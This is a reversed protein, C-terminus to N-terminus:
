ATFGQIIIIIIIIDRYSPAFPNFVRVNFFARQRDKGWFSTAVIDLRADDESNASRYTLREETVHQLGPETGVNHCVENLLDVTIDRIENHRISPFGGSFCSLAHEVTFQSGCICHSPLRSQRLGYRLCLADRFAGKHLAFGHM